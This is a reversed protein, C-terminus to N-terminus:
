SAQPGLRKRIRQLLGNGSQPMIGSRQAAIRTNGGPDLPTGAPVRGSDIDAPDVHQSLAEAFRDLSDLRRRQWSWRPSSSSFIGRADQGEEGM